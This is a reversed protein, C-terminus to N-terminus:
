WHRRERRFGEEDEGGRPIGISIGIRYSIFNAESLIPFLTISGDPHDLIDGETLYEMVGNEHYKAGLNISIPVRGQHVNLELGGGLGWSFTGDGLNQTSFSDDDGWISELSSTTNFYGFGLFANVYPRMWDLPLALEPGIGGFFISNSTQLRAQVRCGVGDFCVRKSEYGYILFGLDGRLSVLGQPELPIRGSFEAGFGANVFDSFEGIPEAVLFSIGVAPSAPRYLPTQASVAAALFLLGALTLAPARAKM